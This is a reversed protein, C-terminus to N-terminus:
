PPNVVRGLFLCAGTEPHRIAFLFPHDVRFEVPKAAPRAIATARMMVVATAAAAETGQEDLTLFAKHIVESIFLYDDPNRPAMRDFDAAGRPRDFASGMGLAVLADKLRLAPPELRLRPLHVIADSFDSGAGQALEAPTLRAEVDALGNTADPLWVVFELAAAAYPIALVRCGARQAFAFRGRRSMTPKRVVRGDGLYFPVPETMAVPFVEMWPAKLYVTNVLVLRTSANLAGAPILDRIRQHTADATWLNIERTATGANHVFDMPQFPAHYVTRLRDLFPRRFAFNREGFLRNAIDLTIPDGPSGGPRRPRDAAAATVEHVRELAAELQGFSGDLAADDEPYRLTRAMDSRTRGSAGTYTLALALQISYPSLLANGAAPRWRLLDLGLGAVAASAPGVAASGAKVPNSLALALALAATLGWVSVWRMRVLKHM